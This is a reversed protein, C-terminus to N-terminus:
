AALLRMESGRVGGPRLRTAAEELVTAVEIELSDCVAELLDSSVDKRGREIESLYPLSVAAQEAVDALTRDQRMREERLVEGMADRVKRREGDDNSGTRSPFPVVPALESREDDHSDTM